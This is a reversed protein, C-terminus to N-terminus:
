ENTLWVHGLGGAATADDSRLYQQFAKAADSLYFSVKDMLKAVDRLDEAVHDSLEATEFDILYWVNDSVIVNPWRIDCHCWGQAHFAKLATLVALIVLQLVSEDSVIESDVRGSEDVCMPTGRPSLM